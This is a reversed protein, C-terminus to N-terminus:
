ESVRIALDKEILKQNLYEDGIWVDALYRDYKDSKVTKILLPGRNKQFQAEVFAKAEKGESSEIEPADLGRLRLHQRVTIGFGLDVLVWVTDGDTVNLVRVNYTFLTEPDM